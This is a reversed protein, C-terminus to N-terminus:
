DNPVWVVKLAKEHLKEKRAFEWNPGTRSSENFFENREDHFHFPCNQQSREKQVRIEEKREETHEKIDRCVNMRWSLSYLRKLEGKDLLSSIAEEWGNEYQVKYPQEGKTEQHSNYV